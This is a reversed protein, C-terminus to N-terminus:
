VRLTRVAGRVGLARRAEEPERGIVRCALEFVGDPEGLWRIERDREAEWKERRYRYEGWTELHGKRYGKRLRRRKPPGETLIASTQDVMAKMLPLVGDPHIAM